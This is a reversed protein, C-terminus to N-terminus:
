LHFSSVGLFLVSQVVVVSEALSSHTCLYSKRKWFPLYSLVFGWINCCVSQMWCRFVISMDYFLKCSNFTFIQVFNRFSLIIGRWKITGGLTSWIFKLHRSLMLFYYFFTIQRKIDRSNTSFDCLGVCVVRIAFGIIHRFYDKWEIPYMGTIINVNWFM